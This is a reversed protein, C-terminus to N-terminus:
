IAQPRSSHNGKPTRTPGGQLGSDSCSWDSLMSLQNDDCYQTIPIGHVLEMVFYPSGARDHGRGAGQRHQSSGDVGISATGSRLPCHNGEFGNGAQDVEIAVWRRVPERQEAVFVLGFGGEGIQEM